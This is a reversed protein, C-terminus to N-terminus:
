GLRVYQMDDFVDSVQRGNINLAKGSGKSVIEARSPNRYLRFYESANLRAAINAHADYESARWIGIAWGGIAINQSTEESPNKTNAISADPKTSPEGINVPDQRWFTQLLDRLGYAGERWNVGIALAASIVTLGAASVALWIRIQKLAM